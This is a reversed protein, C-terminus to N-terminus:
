SMPPSLTLIGLVDSIHVFVSFHACHLIQGTLFFGLHVVIWWEYHCTSNEFHVKLINIELPFVM